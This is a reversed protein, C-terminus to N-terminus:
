TIPPVTLAHVLEILVGTPVEDASADVWGWDPDRRAIDIGDKSVSMMWDKNKAYRGGGGPIAKAEM